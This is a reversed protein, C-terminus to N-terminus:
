FENHLLLWMNGTIDVIDSFVGLQISFNFFLLLLNLEMMLVFLDFLKHFSYPSLQKEHISVLM